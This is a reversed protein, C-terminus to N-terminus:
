RELQAFWAWTDKAISPGIKYFWHTHHPILVLESPHGNQAMSQATERAAVPYFIQDSSGLYARIPVGGEIPIFSNPMAYGGHTAAARWPGNIRNAFVQSMIAGASHGFLLINDTDIGYHKQAQPILSLVAKADNVKWGGFKANLGLLLLGEKDATEKWMEVLSYGNRGAGHLLIVAPANETASRGKYAIFSRPRIGDIFYHKRGLSTDASYTAVGPHPVSLAAGDIETFPQPQPPDILQTPQVEVSGNHIPVFAVILSAAFLTFLVAIIIKRLM